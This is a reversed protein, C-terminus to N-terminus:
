NGASTKSDVRVSQAIDGLGQLTFSLLVQNKHPNSLQGYGLDIFWCRCSGLWRFAGRSELSHGHLADIRSYAGARLQNTLVVEANGEFQNILSRDNISDRVFDWKAGLSHGADSTLNTVISWSSFKGDQTDINSELGLAFQPTPFLYIQADLDSLGNSNPDRNRNHELIDFNQKAIFTVLERTDGNQVRAGGSVSGLDESDKNTTLLETGPLVKPSAILDNNRQNLSSQPLFRGYLSTRVGYELSRKEGIRDISDFVPLDNQDRKPIGTFRTFPEITHKVRVLSNDQNNAGWSTLSTLWSDRDVSYVRELATSLGASVIPMTRSASADLYTTPQDVITPVDTNNLRYDTRLLSISSYGQLFPGIHFPLTASPVAHSRFGDYGKARYFEDAVYDLATVVKLGYDNYGWPRWSKSVNLNFEPLRKIVFDDNENDLAQVYEGSLEAVGYEGLGERVLARSITSTQTPDGLDEDPIERLFLDDSVYHVDAIYTLDLPADKEARWYHQLFAGTRNQDFTPDFLGNVNTGRLSSGRASEDSYYFRSDLQNYRSFKQRYGVSLGTRTRAAIFPSITTDATEGLTVFLPIEAKFGDKNDYGFSPALFGTQREEKVPFGIFPTYFIPTDGLKVTAWNGYAYGDRTMSIHSAEISWPPVSSDSCKSDSGDSASGSKKEDGCSCTTFQGNDLEFREDDLKRIETARAHFNSDEFQVKACSFTGAETTLNTTGSEGEIKAQPSNVTVAGAFSADKTETQISINDSEISMSGSQLAVGGSGNVTKGDRSYEITPARLDMDKDPSADRTTATKIAQKEAKKQAKTDERFLLKREPLPISTQASAISSFILSSTVLLCSAITRLAIAVSVNRSRSLNCSLFPRLCTSGFAVGIPNRIM